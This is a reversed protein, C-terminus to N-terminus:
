SRGLSKNIIIIIIRLYVTASKLCVLLTDSRMVPLQTVMYNRPSSSLIKPLATWGRVRQAMEGAWKLVRFM